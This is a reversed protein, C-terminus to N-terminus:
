AGPIEVFIGIEDFLKGASKLQIGLCNLFGDSLLFSMSHLPDSTASAMSAASSPKDKGIM